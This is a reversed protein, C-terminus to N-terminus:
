QRKEEEKKELKELVGAVNDSKEVYEYVGALEFIRDVQNQAHVITVSGGVSKMLKYRGIVIGIGSSDMFKTNAFDLVVDNVRNGFITKDIRGKIKGAQHHDLEEGFSVLLTNGVLFLETDM